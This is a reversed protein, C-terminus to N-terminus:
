HEKWIPVPFCSLVAATTELEMPFHELPYFSDSLFSVNLRRQMSEDLGLIELLLCGLFDTFNERSM